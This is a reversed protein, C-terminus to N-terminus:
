QETKDFTVRVRSMPWFTIMDLILETIMSWTITSQTNGIIRYTARIILQQYWNTLYGVSLFTNEVEGRLTLDKTISCPLVNEQPVM